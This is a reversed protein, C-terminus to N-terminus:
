SVIAEMEFQFRGERTALGEEGRPGGREREALCGINLVILKQREAESPKEGGSFEVKGAEASGNGM